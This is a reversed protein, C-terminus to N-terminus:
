CMVAEGYVIVCCIVCGGVVVYVVAVTVVGAGVVVSVARGCM